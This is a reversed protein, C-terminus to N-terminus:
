PKPVGPYTATVAIRYRAHEHKLTDFPLRSLAGRVVRECAGAAKPSKLTRGEKPTTVVVSRKKFTVDAVFIITGGSAERPVCSANDEVARGFAIELEAVHDCQEPLTKKVGPDHCSLTKVAGVLIKEDSTPPSAQAAPSMVPPLGAAESVGVNVPISEARPRRWLYLPIAVLALVLFLAVIM